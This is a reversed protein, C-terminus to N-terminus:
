FRHISAKAGDEYISFVAVMGYSAKGDLMTWAFSSASGANIYLKETKKKMPFKVVDGSPLNSTARGGAELIHSFIGYRIQHQEIFEALDESGVNGAGEAVDIGKEGRSKPPGHSTIIVTGGSAQAKQVLPALEEVHQKTYRCAGSRMFRSNNYGPVSFLHFDGYAVHRVWNMSVVHPHTKQVKEIAHNFAGTWEINGPFAFVPFPSEEGLMTLVDSLDEDEALDGNAVIFSVGKKKFIRISKKLNKRTKASADKLSGVVGIHLPGKKLKTKLALSSGLATFQQGKLDLDTQEKLEFPSTPCTFEYRLAIDDWTKPWTESLDEEDSADDSDGEADTEAKNEESPSIVDASDMETKEQSSACGFISFIFLGTFLKVPIPM